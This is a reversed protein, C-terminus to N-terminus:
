VYRHQRAHEILQKQLSVAEDWLAGNVACELMRNLLEVAQQTLEYHRYVALARHYISLAQQFQHAEFAQDGRQVLQEVNDQRTKLEEEATMGQFGYLYRSMLSQSAKGRFAQHVTKEGLNRYFENYYLEGQDSVSLIMTGIGSYLLTRELAIMTEEAQDPPESLDLILCYANQRYRFFDQIALKLGSLELVSKLPAMSHVDVRGALHM